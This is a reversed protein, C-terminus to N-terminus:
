SNPQPSTAPADITRPTAVTGTKGPDAPVVIPAAPAVVRPAPPLGSPQLEKAYGGSQQGSGQQYNPVPDNMSQVPQQRTNALPGDPRNVVRSQAAASATLLAM